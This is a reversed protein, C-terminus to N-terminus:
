VHELFIEVRRSDTLLNVDNKIIDTIKAITNRYQEAGYSTKDYYATRGGRVFNLLNDTGLKVIGFNLIQIITTINAPDNLYNTDYPFGLFRVLDISLNFISVNASGDTCNDKTCDRETIDLTNTELMAMAMFLYKLEERIGVKDFAQKLIIKNKKLSEGYDTIM